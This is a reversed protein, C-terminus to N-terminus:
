VRVARVTFVGREVRKQNERRMANIRDMRAADTAIREKKLSVAEGRLAKRQASRAREYAPSYISKM